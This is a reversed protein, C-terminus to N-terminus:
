DLAFKHFGIPIMTLIINSLDNHTYVTSKRCSWQGRTHHICVYAAGLFEESEAFGYSVGNFLTLISQSNGRGAEAELKLNFATCGM